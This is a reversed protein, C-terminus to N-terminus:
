RQKRPRPARARVPRQLRRWRSVGRVRLSCEPECTSLEQCQPDTSSVGEAKRWVFNKHKWIIVMLGIACYTHFHSLFAFMENVMPMRSILGVSLTANEGRMNKAIGESMKAGGCTIPPTRGGTDLRKWADAVALLAALLLLKM